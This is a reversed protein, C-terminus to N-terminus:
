ACKRKQCLAINAELSFSRQQSGVNSAIEDSVGLFPCLTLFGLLTTKSRSIFEDSSM